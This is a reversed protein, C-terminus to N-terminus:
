ARYRFRSIKKVDTLELLDAIDAKTAELARISEEMCSKWKEIKRTNNAELAKELQEKDSEVEEISEELFENLEILMSKKIAPTSEVKEEEKKKYLYSICLGLQFSYNVEDHKAKIEKTLKHAAKMVNKM